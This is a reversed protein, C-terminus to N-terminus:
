TSPDSGRALAVMRITKFLILLDLLFSFNKLYYIDYSLKNYADKVSSGYPYNVQAWGSLGPKMKLRLSYHPIKEILDQDFEPREPRPGILSMEGNFVNWLQPLEDIRLKRLFFGVKTIRNDKKSAWKAGFEEANTKMTRLKYIKITKNFQGTRLQSYFIPGKDELYILLGSLSIVPLFIIILLASLLIDGIRKLRLETIVRPFVNHIFLLNQNSILNSPLLQFYDEVWDLFYIIRLNSGLIKKDMLFSKSIQDSYILGEYEKLKLENIENINNVNILSIKKSINIESKIKHFLEQNSILIWKEKDTNLKFNIFIFLSQILFSMFIYYKLFLFDFNDSGFLKYSIFKMILLSIVTILSTGITYFLQQFIARKKHAYISHYRGLIYGTLIWYLLIYFESLFNFYFGVIFFLILDLSIRSLLLERSRLWPLFKYIM